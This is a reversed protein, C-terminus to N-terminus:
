RRFDTLFLSSSSQCSPPHKCSAEGECKQRQDGGGVGKDGGRGEPAEGGSAGGGGDCHRVVVFLAVVWGTKM